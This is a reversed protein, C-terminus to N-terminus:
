FVTRDFKKINASQEVIIAELQEYTTDPSSYKPPGKGKRRAKKPITKKRALM